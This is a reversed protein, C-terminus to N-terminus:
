YTLKNRGVYTVKTVSYCLHLISASKRNAFSNNSHIMQTSEKVNVQWAPECLPRFLENQSDRIQILDCSFFEPVRLPNFLINM